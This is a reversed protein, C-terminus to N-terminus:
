CFFIFIYGIIGEGAIKSFFGCHIGSKAICMTVINSHHIRIHLVRGAKKRFHDLNEFTAIVVADCCAAYTPLTLGRDLEKAESNYSLIECSRISFDLVMWM